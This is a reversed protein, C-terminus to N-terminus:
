KWPWYWTHWLCCASVSLSTDTKRSVLLHTHVHHGGEARSMHAPVIVCMCLSINPWAWLLLALDEQLPFFAFVLVTCFSAFCFVHVHVLADEGNGVITTQFLQKNQSSGWEQNEECSYSQQPQTGATSHQANCFDPNKGSGDLPSPERKSQLVHFYHWHPWCNQLPVATASRYLLVESGSRQTTAPSIHFDMSSAKTGAAQAGCLEIFQSCSHIASPATSQMQSQLIKMGGCVSLYSVDVFDIWVSFKFVFLLVTYISWTLLVWQLNMTTETSMKNSECQLPHFSFCDYFLSGGRGRPASSTLKSISKLTTIDSKM